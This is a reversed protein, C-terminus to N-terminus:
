ENVKELAEYKVKLAEYKIRDEEETKDATENMGRRYLEKLSKLNLMNIKYSDIQLTEGLMSLGKYWYEISDLEVKMDEKLIQLVHWEKLKYNIGREELAAIIGPFERESCALDVDHINLEQNKTYAFVALSGNLIPSIGLDHCVDLVVKCFEILRLFKDQNKPFFDLVIM